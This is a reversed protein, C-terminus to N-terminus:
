AKEPPPAAPPPSAAAVTRMVQAAVVDYGEPTFHIGDDLRMRAVSGALTPGHAAYQGGESVLLWIDIFVGGEAQVVDAFLANLTRMDRSYKEERAIPNGVWYVPIESARAAHVLQTVRARYVETWAASNFQLSGGDPLRIPLRDNGGFMMVVVDPKAPALLGPMAAPWDFSAPAVLGTGPKAGNVVRAQGSARAQRQMASALGQAQSDGVVLILRRGEPEAARAASASLLGALVGRRTMGHDGM